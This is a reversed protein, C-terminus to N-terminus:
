ELRMSNLRGNEDQFYLIDGDPDVSLNFMQTPVAAYGLYTANGSPLDIRYLGDNSTVLGHNSGAGDVMEDPVACYLVTSSAFACKEVWTELAIRERAEDRDGDADAYWLSPRYDNASEAVSYILHQGDPAWIASFDSGEVILVGSAEGDLGILYYQQRGFSSQTTGTRSFAVVNGSPSWNVQVKDDNEGLAAVVETRSGDASTVVLSRNSPDSGISKGAIEDGDASFSFDEWHSPLTVQKGSDFGYVINSGDPFEIVAASVDSAFTVTEADPFQKESLRELEGDNDITYFRGDAPDYFAVTGQTTTTPSLIETNTLLRTSTAGGEAVPSPPLTGGGEEDEDDEDGSERPGADGSGTLTGDTTDGDDVTQTDEVDPSGRFFAFYLAAGIGVAAALFVALRLIM